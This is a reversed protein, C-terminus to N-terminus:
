QPSLLLTWVQVLTPQRGIKRDFSELKARKAPNPEMRFSSLGHRCVVSAHSSGTTLSSSQCTPPVFDGLSIVDKGLMGEPQEVSPNPGCENCEGATEAGMSLNAPPMGDLKDADTEQRRESGEIATMVTADHQVGESPAEASVGGCHFPLGTSAHVIQSAEQAPGSSCIADDPVSTGSHM